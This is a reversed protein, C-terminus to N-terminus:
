LKNQQNPKPKKIASRWCILDSTNGGSRAAGRCLHVQTTILEVHMAFATLMEEIQEGDAHLPRRRNKMTARKSFALLCAVLFTLPIQIANLIRVAEVSSMEVMWILCGDM